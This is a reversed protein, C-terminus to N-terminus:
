FGPVTNIDKKLAEVALREGASLYEKRANTGACARRLADKWQAIGNVLERPTLYREKYAGNDKVYLVMCFAPNVALAYAAMQISHWAAPYGTKIDILVPKGRIEALLDYRGCYRLGDISHDITTEVSLTEAGTEAKWLAFANVYPVTADVCKGKAYQECLSHANTGRDRAQVTYFRDDIIGATKLIQTVSPIVTGGDRYEHKAPNFDIM